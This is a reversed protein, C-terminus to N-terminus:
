SLTEPYHRHMQVKGYKTRSHCAIYQRHQAQFHMMDIEFSSEVNRVSYNLFIKFLTGVKTAENNRILDHSRTHRM